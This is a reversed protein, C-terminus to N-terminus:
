PTRIEHSMNAMFESKAKESAEAKERALELETIDTFSALVFEEDEFAIPKSLVSFTRKKGKADYIVVKHQRNPEKFIIDTWHNNLNEKDLCGDKEVFLEYIYRYKKKFDALSDFGFTEFFKKNAKLIGDQKNLTFVINEQDEFLMQNYRYEKELKKEAIVRQTIDSRIAMYEIIHNNKNLIPFIYTDIYYSSGDKAMNRLEGHWTQKSSITNWMNKYIQFPEDPHRVINHPKGLLEDESYGSLQCFARNVYTIHGTIDTKSVIMTKDITDKYQRLLTSQEDVQDKLSLNYKEITKYIEMIEEANMNITHKFENYTNDVIALLEQIKKDLQTIDYDKGFINKIQSNLLKNM